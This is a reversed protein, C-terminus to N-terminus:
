GLLNQRSVGKFNLRDRRAHLYCAPAPVVEQDLGMYYLRFYNTATKTVRIMRVNVRNVNIWGSIASYNAQGIWSAHTTWSVGDSSTDLTQVQSGADEPGGRLRVKGIAQVTGFDIMIWLASDTGVQAYNGENLDFGDPGNSLNASATITPSGVVSNAAIEAM